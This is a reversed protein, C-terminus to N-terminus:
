AEGVLMLCFRQVKVDEDCNHTRVWDNTCLLHAVADEKPRGAFEPKFHSCIIVQQIIQPVPQYLFPQLLNPVPVFLGALNAPNPQQPNHHAPPVAGSPDTPAPQNPSPQQPAPQDAPQNPAQQPPANPGASTTNDNDNNQDANANNAPNAPNPAVLGEM